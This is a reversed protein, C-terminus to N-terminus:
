ETETEIFGLGKRNELAEPALPVPQLSKLKQLADPHTQSAKPRMNTRKTRPVLKRTAEWAENSAKVAKPVFDKDNRARGHQITAENHKAAAEVHQDVKVGNNHEAYARAQDLHQAQITVHVKRHDVHDIDELTPKEWDVKAAPNDDLNDGSALELTEVFVPQVWEVDDWEARALIPSSLALAAVLLLIFSPLRMASPILSCVQLRLEVCALIPLDVAVGACLMM